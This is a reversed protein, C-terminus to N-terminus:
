IHEIIVAERQFVTLKDDLTSDEVSYDILNTDYIAKALVNLDQNYYYVTEGDRRVLKAGINDFVSTDVDQDYFRLIKDNSLKTSQDEIEIIEGENIYAIRNCISQAERMNSTTIVATMGEKNREAVLDYLRTKFVPDIISSPEDLLLLSPKSILANVVAIKKRNNQTMDGIKGKMDIEFYDILEYLEERNKFKHVKLTNKFIAIPRMDDHFWVEQPVFSTVEKIEKSKKRSDMDFVTINGSSPRVFDMTMRLLTSKFSKNPGVIGLIEGEDISLNLNKLSNSGYSKSINTFKLVEM